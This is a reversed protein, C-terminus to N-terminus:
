LRVGAEDLVREVDARDYFRWYPGDEDLLLRGATRMMERDYVAAANRSRLPASLGSAAPFAVGLAAGGSAVIDEYRVVREPPAVTEYREFFFRVLALRREMRDETAALHAALEPAAADPVGLRGGHAPIRVSEWSALVSLPNRVIAVVPFREQLIPLLASFAVPHKIALTFAETSALRVPVEGREFIRARGGDPATADSMKAGIVRGDVHNTLAVGRAVVSERQQAAFREIDAWLSEPELSGDPRTARTILSGVDMPEDLAVVHGTDNLLECALTTGGRPLGTLLVTPESM